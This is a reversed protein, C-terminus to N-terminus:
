GPAAKPADVAIRRVELLAVEVSDTALVRQGLGHWAGAGADRWVTERALALMPQGASESGPYRSPVLCAAEGGDAFVAHGPMWVVDRLDHPEELVLERLRGYPMWYYKGDVILELVPGLRSDADAIWAFPQGDLTGAVPEAQAYAQERLGQAQAMEGQAAVRLAEVLLALWPPPEGLIRPRAQGAFVRAREQECDIAAGYAQALMLAAPDLSAALAVQERAREWQGLVALLQFLFIRLRADGPQARVQEQLQALARAPDGERLSREALSPTNM